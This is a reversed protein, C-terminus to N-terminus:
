KQADLRELGFRAPNALIRQSIDVNRNMETVIWPSCTYPDPDVFHVLAYRHRQSRVARVRHYLPQIQGGTLLSLIDGPMVLVSPPLPTVAVFGRGRAKIELGESTSSALTLLHGDEHEEHIYDNEARQPEAYNLQLCSWAQCGRVFKTLFDTGLGYNFVLGALIEAVVLQLSDFLRVMEGNLQNAIGTAFDSNRTAEGATFSEFPDPREPSQSYEAAFQRYGYGGAIRDRLKVTEAEAFYKEATVYVATFLTSVGSQMVLEASGERQLVQAVM